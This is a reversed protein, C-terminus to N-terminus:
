RGIDKTLTRPTYHDRVKRRLWYVNGRRTLHLNSPMEDM